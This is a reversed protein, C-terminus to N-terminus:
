GSLRRRAVPYHFTPRLEAPRGFERREASAPRVKGKIYHVISVIHQAFLEAPSRRLQSSQVHQFISRFEPDKKAASPTERAALREKSLSSSPPSFLHAVNM